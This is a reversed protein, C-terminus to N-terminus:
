IRDRVKNIQKWIGKRWMWDNIRGLITDPVILEKYREPYEEKLRQEFEDNITARPREPHDMVVAHSYKCRGSSAREMRWGFETDDRWGAYESRFLGIDIATDRDFSLNCGVYLRTGNYVRGGRVRGELCVLEDTTAFEDTVNEVWEKSPRCDDDTLAVIDGKAERIGTNRAECINLDNDNVVLIEYNSITQSQLCEVVASHDNSPITPIVVSVTPNARERPYHISM